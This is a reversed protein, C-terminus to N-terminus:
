PSVAAACNGDIIPVVCAPPALERTNLALARTHSSHRDGHCVGVVRGILHASQHSPEFAEYTSTHRHAPGRNPVKQPNQPKQLELHGRKRIQEAQLRASRPGALDRALGFGEFGTSRATALALGGAGKLGTGLALPWLAVVEGVVSPMRAAV